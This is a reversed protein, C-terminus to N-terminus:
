VGGCGGGGSLFHSDFGHVRGFLNDGSRDSRAIVRGAEAPDCAVGSGSDADVAAAAVDEVFRGDRDNFGDATPYQGDITGVAPRSELFEPDSVVGDLPVRFFGDFTCIPWGFSYCADISGRLTDFYKGLSVRM